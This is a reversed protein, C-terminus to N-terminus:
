LIMLYFVFIQKRQWLLLLSRCRGTDWCLHFFSSGPFNACLIHAFFAWFNAFIGFFQVFFAFVKKFIRSFFFFFYCLQSCKACKACGSRGGKRDETHKTSDTNSLSALPWIEVIWVFNQKGPLTRSVVCLYHTVDM